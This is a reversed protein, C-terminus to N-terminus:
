WTHSLYHENTETPENKLRDVTRQIDNLRVRIWTQFQLGVLQGMVRGLIM